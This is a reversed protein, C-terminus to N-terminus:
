RTTLTCQPASERPVSKKHDGIRLFEEGSPVTRPEKLQRPSGCFLKLREERVLYLRPGWQVPYFWVLSDPTAPDSSVLPVTPDELSPPWLPVHIRPRPPMPLVASAGVRPPSTPVLVALGTALRVTFGTALPRGKCALQADSGRIVLNCGGLMSSSYTGELDDGFFPEDAPLVPSATGLCITAAIAIRM